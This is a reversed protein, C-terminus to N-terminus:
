LSTSWPYNSIAPASPLGQRMFSPLSDNTIIPVCFFYISMAIVSRAVKTVFPVSTEVNVM